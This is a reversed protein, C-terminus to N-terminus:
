ILAPCLYSRARVGACTAAALWIIRVRSSASFGCSWVSARWRISRPLCSARVAHRRLRPGEGRGAARYRPRRLLHALVLASGTVGRRGGRPSAQSVSAGSHNRSLHRNKSQSVSALGFGGMSGRRYAPRVLWWGQRMCLLRAGLGHKRSLPQGILWQGTCVPQLLLAQSSSAMLYVPGALGMGVCRSGIDSRPSASQNTTSATTNTTM